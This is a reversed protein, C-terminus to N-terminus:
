TVFDGTLWRWPRASQRAWGGTLWATWGFQPRPKWARWTLYALLSGVGIGAAIMSTAPWLLAVATAGYLSVTPVLDNWAIWGFGWGRTSFPWLLQVPWRYFCFDTVLHGLLALQLWGWLPFFAGLGFGFAGILALALPGGLTLPLGHGLVRHHRRHYHWGGVLTIGDLDPLMGAALMLATGAAGYHSQVGFQAVLYSLALHEPIKMHNCGLM